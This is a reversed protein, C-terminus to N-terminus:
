SRGFIGQRGRPNQVKRLSDPKSPDKGVEAGHSANERALRIRELIDNRTPVNPFRQEKALEEALWWIMGYCDGIVEISDSIGDYPTGDDKAM